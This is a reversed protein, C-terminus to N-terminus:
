CCVTVFNFSLNQLHPIGSNYGEVSFFTMIQKVDRNSRAHGLVKALCPLLYIEVLLLCPYNGVELMKCAAIISNIKVIPATKGSLQRILEGVYNFM